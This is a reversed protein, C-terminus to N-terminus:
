LQRTEIYAMARDLRALCRDKGLAVIIDFLGPGVTRGSLALRTPHILAGGKLGMEKIARRYAKETEELTFSGADVQALAARGGALIDVVGEKTFHKRVGKEDYSFDDTFFYASAEALEVLTHIRTRVADIARRLYAEEEATPNEPILGRARMFPRVAEVVRELPLGSLYQANVWTLKKTDYIAPNKSVSDLAFLSVIEKIDYIEQEGGPSWGLLALYNLIAEPLYGEDRFEEVATAGHRKSLKARDPALIMPVHAFQPVPYGLAHYVAIQKPTNSLHEEARIVHTIGMAHDDVVCAFNYTPMGNSKIIIYDDFSVRNDFTVRGRVLDDVVTTGAEPAKLRLVPRCGMDEKKRCEAETLHRCCGSYRPVQGKKRAAERERALQEPTCYCTYAKGEKLLKGAAATYLDLRESQAYPGFPGGKDPGEDWDLGLWRLTSGIQAAAAAIYRETDTDELRLVFVGGHNRAFLWNFLATRAGGIHLSGTPSPAFRVRITDM